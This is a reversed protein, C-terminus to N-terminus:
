EWPGGTLLSVQDLLMLVCSGSVREAKGYPQGMIVEPAIYDPTGYVENDVFQNDKTWADEIVHATYNVFGIKSLGFDTLKIHGESTILLSSSVCLDSTSSM